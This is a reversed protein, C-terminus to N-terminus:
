ICELRAFAPVMYPNTGGFGQSVPCRCSRSSTPLRSPLVGTLCRGKHPDPWLAKARRADTYQLHSKSKTRSCMPLSCLVWHLTSASSRHARHAPSPAVHRPHPLFCFVWSLTHCYAQHLQSELSQWLPAVLHQVLSKVRLEMEKKYFLAVVLFLLLVLLLRRGQASCECCLLHQRCRKIFM